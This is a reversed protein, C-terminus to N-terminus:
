FQKSQDLRFNVIKFLFTDSNIQTLIFSSIGTLIRLLIDIRRCKHLTEGERLRKGKGMRREGKGEGNGM